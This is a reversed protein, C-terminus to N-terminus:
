EYHSTKYPMKLEVETGENVTSSITIGFDDGYLIKLRRNANYLGIQETANEEKSLLEQLEQLKEPEIGSGDDYVSLILINGDIRGKIFIKMKMKKKYGYKLSNEVIPQLILKPVYAEKAKAPIHIEYNLRDQFRLKHLQLYDITYELDNELPIEEGTADYSYRLLKSLTMIIQEAKKTDVLMTYRLTELVNFLFHPNFQSKLLKIESIRRIRALEANRKMLQDLSNVMDNYQKYLYVFENETFDGDDKFDVYADLNGRQLQQVATVLKNISQANKSAMKEALIRVLFYLISGTLLSFGFYILSMSNNKASKLTYIKFQGDYSDRQSFYFTEENIKVKSRGVYELRFKNMIGKALDNTTAIINDFKDTVIAIDINESFLINLIDNEYLQLVIGGIVNKNEVISKGLSLTTMEGRSVQSEMVDMAIKDPNKKIYNIFRTFHYDNQIQNRNTSLLVKGNENVLTFVSKVKQKNNFNYFEEFVLNSNQNNKLFDKVKTSDALELIENRYSDYIDNVQRLINDATEETDNITKFYIFIYTFSFFVFFLFFVPIVTYKMFLAKTAQKFDRKQNNLSRMRGQGM